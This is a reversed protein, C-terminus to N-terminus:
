IGSTLINCACTVEQAGMSTIMSANWTCKASIAQLVTPKLLCTCKAHLAAVTPAYKHSLPFQKAGKFTGKPGGTVRDTVTDGFISTLTIDAPFSFGKGGGSLLFYNDKTKEMLRFDSTGARLAVSQVPVRCVLLWTDTHANKCSDHTFSLTRFVAAPAAPPPATIDFQPSPTPKDTCGSAEQM